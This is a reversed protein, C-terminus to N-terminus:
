QKDEGSLQIQLTPRKDEDQAERSSFTVQSTSSRRQARLELTLERMNSKACQLLMETLDIDYDLSNNGASGAATASPLIRVAGPTYSSDNYYQLWTASHEDWNSRVAKIHFANSGKKSYHGMPTSVKNNSPHAKKSTNAFLKLRASTIRKQPNSNIEAILTSIDFRLLSTIEYTRRSSKWFGASLTASTGLSFRQNERLLTDAEPHLHFQNKNKTGGLTNLRVAQEPASRKDSLHIKGKEDVWKYVEAHSYTFSLLLCLVIITKLQTLLVPALM